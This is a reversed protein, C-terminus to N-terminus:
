FIELSGKILVLKINIHEKVMRDIISGTEKIPIKIIAKGSAMDMKQAMKGIEKFPKETIGYSNEMVMDKAM